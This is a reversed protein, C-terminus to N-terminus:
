KQPELIELESWVSFTLLAWLKKISEFDGASPSLSLEEIYRRNFGFRAILKEMQDRVFNPNARLWHGLPSSFGKKEALVPLEQLEPFESNFFEVKPIFKGQTNRAFAYQYIEDDLFPSRAEISFNMSVRDLRRNSEMGIWILMDQDQLMEYTSRHPKLSFTTFFRSDSLSNARNTLRDLEQRTFLEHWTAWFSFNNQNMQALTFRTAFRVLPNNHHPNIWYNSDLNGLKRIHAAKEYRAYGRFLEDAGDGTLSLRIGDKKMESYLNLMSIGTPNNNPEEMIRVYERLQQPMAEASIMEVESHEINLEKAILRAREADENYSHKDSDTWRATYSRV